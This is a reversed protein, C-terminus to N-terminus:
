RIDYWNLHFGNSFGKFFIDMDWQDGQIGIRTLGYWIRLFVETWMRKFAMEMDPSFWGKFFTSTGKFVNLTQIVNTKFDM